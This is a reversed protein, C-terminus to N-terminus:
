YHPPREAAPLERLGEREGLEKLKEAMRAARRELADIRRGQELVLASLEAVEAEQYASRTEVAAFRREVTEEVDGGRAAGSAAGAGM